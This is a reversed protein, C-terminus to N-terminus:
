LMCYYDASNVRCAVVRSPVACEYSERVFTTTGTAGGLAKGLTSNIIDVRGHM